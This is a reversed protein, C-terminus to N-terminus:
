DSPAGGENATYAQARRALEPDLDGIMEWVGAVRTTLEQHDAGGQADAALQDIAAVIRHIAEGQSSCV